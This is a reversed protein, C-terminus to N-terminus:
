RKELYIACSDRSDAFKQGDAEERLDEIKRYYRVDSVHSLHMLVENEEVMDPQSQLGLKQLVDRM